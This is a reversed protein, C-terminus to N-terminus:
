FNLQLGIRYTTPNPHQTQDIGRSFIFNTNDNPSGSSIEPDYGTYKTVTFLNQVAVYVRFKTITSSIMGKPLTYGLTINKMRFYSGNEVYWSSFAMNTGSNQAAAPMNTVDGDKKWRRLVDTTENFPKTMGEFWYKNGNVADVGAIGQFQVQFDFNKYSGNFIGGYQWKPSPNGIFTRDKDDIFGDGNVDKFIFDGPKLGTIYESKAGSTKTKTAANLANVEAQTSAVHDVKYGYFSALPHGIDTRTSNGTSNYDGYAIPINGLTGLATVDNQSYTLNASIDWKFAKSDDGYSVTSEFGANKMSAANVVLTGNTGPNGLGTTLPLTTSILLDKNDRHYYDFTFNLKNKLFGIDIGADYQTTEEWKLNPNAMSNVTAGNSYPTGDGFSYVINNSSGLWLNQTTLFPAINDNGTKGYSGRFKLNSIESVSKMFEEQTITWGVGVGYFTGWRNNAGFVSSADRRGTLNLVYRDKYTYGVRSFYSLRSKGSNVSAGTISNSNALSINQIATSTYNSGAAAISRYMNSPAYTNGLTASILHDGFQKNYSFFNELMMSYYYNYNETMDATNKVFNGGISPYNFTYDHYNGSSFRAQSKFTLGALLDVEANIELDSNLGRSQYDSNHVSNLPNNADQLDTVKDAHSYGGLNTPDLIPLYPPMRLADNFNALVGKNVDNKVRLNESLRVHKNFLTQDLKFGFTARQFNRDIVTSEHNQYGASFSYSSNEGGGFIRVNHDTVTANRFVENQWNTRNIRVDPTKLKDSLQLGAAAQIDAVLDVYQTANLMSYRKSVSAVGVSGDYQVQMAGKKGRKTTIIVVGNAAASGYIATSSADKLVTISEIDQVPVSNIDGGQMGDIVYLPDPNTFSGVGRIIIKAGAGPDGGNDIVQVGAMKGQLVQRADTTSLGMIEKDSIKAIASAVNKRSATSYGIAIVEDIGVTEAVMKVLINSMNSISVEQAKMGIFSLVLTKADVPVQLNFNGDADTSIGTTTGKVIVAVGPLAVGNEDTVKGKLQKKQPQQTLMAEMDAKSSEKNTIVIQREFVKYTNDTTKFAQDLIEEVTENNANITVEKNLDIINDYYVFIFESSSEIKDFLQKVTVRELDLTFKTTQSYSTKASATTLSILLILSCLKMILLFKKFNRIYPVLLGFKQM